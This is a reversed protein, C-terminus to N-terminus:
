PHAVVPGGLRVWAYLWLAARREEDVPAPELLESEIRELPEGLAIRREVAERLDTLVRAPDRLSM